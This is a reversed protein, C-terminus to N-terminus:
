GHQKYDEAEDEWEAPIAYGAWVVVLAVGVMGLLIIGAIM